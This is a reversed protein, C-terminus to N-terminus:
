CVFNLVSGRGIPPLKTLSPTEALLRYRRLAKKLLEYHYFHPEIAAVGAVVSPASSLAEITKAGDFDTRPEPLEFGAARPDVRGSHLHTSFRLAAASLWRDFGEWDATTTLCRKASSLADGGYDASELAYSGSSNLLQLLESGQPSLKGSESWLLRTARDSYVSNLTEEEQALAVGTLNSPSVCGTAPPADLAWASGSALAAAMLLDRAWNRLM